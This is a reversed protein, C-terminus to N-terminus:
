KDGTIDGLESDSSNNTAYQMIEPFDILFQMSIAKAGLETPHINDSSLYGEYWVGSSNAGVAKYWDIYRLGTSKIYSALEEKDREPVTPIVALVLTINREECLAKLKTFTTIYSDYNGNMGLCWILYKPTGFNLCRILDKYAGDSGQGALGNVLFDFFGFKKLNGIVRNTGVGFYSDGFLWLPKRFDKNTAGLKVNTLQSGTSKAFAAYNAEYEWTDFTTEFIGGLTMLTVHLVGANDGHMFVKIFSTITLNHAITARDMTESEYHQYVINTNDIKLWDGRYKEFGKGIFITDFTTVDAYFSMCLGKKIHYPYDELLITQGDSLSNGSSLEADQGLVSDLQLLKLNSLGNPLYETKFIFKGPEIYNRIEEGNNIMIQATRYNPVSFRVFSINEAWTAIGHVTATDESSVFKKNEDYYCIASGGGIQIGNASCIIKGIKENLIIYGTVAYNESAPLTGVKSLYHGPVFDPSQPDYLNYDFLTTKKAEVANDQLKNTSVSDSALKSNSVSENQISENSIIQEKLIYAGYSIYDTVADGVEVQFNNFTASNFSFRAYAVNEQWTAIGGLESALNGTIVERNADFLVISGGGGVVKGNVSAILQGMDQTFPIFGSVCYNGSSLLDGKNSLHYGEKYDSDDPNLLNTKFLSLKRYGVSYDDIESSSILSGNTLKERTIAGDVLNNTGIVQDKLIYTGYPIYDTITNGIEVQLNSDKNAFSFRVAAVGEEWTAIGRNTSQVESKILNLQKDYYCTYAGGALAVKNISAILTGIEKTLPIYGSICYNESAVLTGVKSLYYGPVFDPDNKDLLNFHFLNSKGIPMKSIAIVKNINNAANKLIYTGYPIYDTITNGIEVQLNSDKNAFSFRVAAVGEEWTAIGRNTSQVESKILNLQKDYYCTYAGGALAVKNISAILTGIEKTLPIYGSICYNESAVLTGVKSLYYGPVFDPDNKDLLNFHFLNSKGIPMKSIAIVKNINSVANKLMPLSLKSWRTNWLLFAVEYDTLTINEFNPYTGTEVAFYFINGDPTGPNTAPTAVGAFTANAGLNTVINKLVNQLVQGTIEQNGNTKIVKAVAAKLESWNAM